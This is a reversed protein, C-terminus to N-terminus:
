SRLTELYAEIPAVSNQKVKFGLYDVEYRFLHCKAAQLKEGALVHRNIVKELVDLHEEHTAGM